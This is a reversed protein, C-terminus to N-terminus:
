QTTLKFSVPMFYKVRVPKKKYIAPKWKPSVSMVRLAESNLDDSIRRVVRVNSLHGDKEIIFDLFVKGQLHNKRANIPYRMSRKIFRMYAEYGGKFEPFSDLLIRPEEAFRLETDTKLRYSEYITTDQKQLRQAKVISFSLTLIFIVLIKKM